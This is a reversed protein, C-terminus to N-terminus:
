ISTLPSYSAAVISTRGDKCVHPCHSHALVQSLLPELGSALSLEEVLDEDTHVRAVELFDRREDGERDRCGDCRGELVVDVLAEFPERGYQGVDVEIVLVDLIDSSLDHVHQRLTQLASIHANRLGVGVLRSQSADRRQMLLDTLHTPQSSSQRSSPPSPHPHCSGDPM